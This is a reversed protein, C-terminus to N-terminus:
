PTSELADLADFLRRWPIPVNTADSMWANRVAVAAAVAALLAPIDQRAHAIFAADAADKVEFCQYEIDTDAPHEAFHRSWNGINALWESEQPGWVVVDEPDATDATWPGPTAGDVRARISEITM